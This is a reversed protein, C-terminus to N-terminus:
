RRATIVVPDTDTPTGALASEPVDLVTALVSRPLANIAARIGIDDITEAAGAGIAARRGVGENDDGSVSDDSM